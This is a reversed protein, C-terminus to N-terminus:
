GEDPLLTKLEEKAEEMTMEGAQVRKALEMVPNLDVGRLQLHRLRFEQGLISAESAVTELQEVTSINGIDQRLKRIRPLYEEAVQREEPSSKALADPALDIREMINIEDESLMLRRQVEPNMIGDERAFRLSESLAGSVTSLHSRSCSLCATGVEEQEAEVPAEQVPAVIPEEPEAEVKVETAKVTPYEYKPLEAILPTYDVVPPKPKPLFRPVLELARFFIAVKDMEGEELSNYLPYTM